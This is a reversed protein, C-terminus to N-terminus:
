RDNESFAADHCHPIILEFLQYEVSSKFMPFWRQTKFLLRLCFFTPSMAYGVKKKVTTESRILVKPCFTLFCSYM